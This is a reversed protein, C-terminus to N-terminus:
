EQKMMLDREEKEEGEELFGMYVVWFGVTLVTGSLKEPIDHFHIATAMLMFWWLGAFGALVTMSGLVVLSQEFDGLRRAARLEEWILIGCHILLLCHGSVDFGTWEGGDKKCSRATSYLISKDPNDLTCSGTAHYIRDLISHGFFWQTTLVWFVTAVTYRKLRAPLSPIRAQLIFKSPFALTAAILIWLAVSTWGWAWKAFVVNLINRKNSVWSDQLTIFSGIIVTFTYILLINIQRNTLQPM